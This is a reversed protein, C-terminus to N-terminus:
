PGQSSFASSRELSSSCYWLSSSPLDMNSLSLQTLKHHTKLKTFFAGTVKPCSSIQLTKLNPLKGLAVLGEDTLDPSVFINVEELEPFYQLRGVADDTVDQTRVGQFTNSSGGIFQIRSLRATEEGLLRTWWASM